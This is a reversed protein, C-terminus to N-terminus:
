HFTKWPFRMTTTAKTFAALSVQAPLTQQNKSTALSLFNSSGCLAKSLFRQWNRGQPNNRKREARVIKWLFHLLPRGLLSFARLCLIIAWTTLSIFICTTCRNLSFNSYNPSFFHPEEFRCIRCHLLEIGHFFFGSWISIKRPSSIKGSFGTSSWQISNIWNTMLKEVM